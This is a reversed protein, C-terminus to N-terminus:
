VGEAYGEPRDRDTIIDSDGETVEIVHAFLQELSPFDVREGTLPDELSAQWNGSRLEGVCWMRLLYSRRRPPQQKSVGHEEDCEAREVCWAGRQEDSRGECRCGIYRPATM